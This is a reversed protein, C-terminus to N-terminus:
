LLPWVSGVIWNVPFYKCEVVAAVGLEISPNYTKYVSLTANNFTSIVPTSALKNAACDFNISPILFTWSVPAVKLICSILSLLKLLFLALSTTKLM